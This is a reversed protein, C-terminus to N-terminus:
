ELLAKRLPEIWTMTKPDFIGFSSAFEWYAWGISRKEAEDRVFRVYAERSDLAALRYVGFEGLHLPYGRRQSWQVAADLGDVIQKRQASDCCSVGTPMKMPLFGVGQHTFFFPDYNHIAVVLNRDAPLQLKELDRIANYNTPGVLIVRAPNSERVVALAEAFLRNWRPADIKGHPENLLEFILRDSRNSYRKAVQRWINLFRAEVVDPAVEFEAPLLKDGFLQGYNHMNLIVYAGRALLDDVVGDVRRAFAQDIAAAEDAAAHNSWRVPLRVTRFNAAAIEAFRPELRVGWDGERPADLMGGLNIGRGLSKALRCTAETVSTCGIQGSTANESAFLPSNAGLLVAVLLGSLIKALSKAIYRYIM